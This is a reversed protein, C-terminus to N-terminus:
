TRPLRKGEPLEDLLIGEKEAANVARKAKTGGINELAGAATQRVFLSNDHLAKILADVSSPDRREGLQAAAHIRVMYRSDELATVLLATAEAGKSTGIREIAGLCLQDDESKLEKSLEALVKSGESPQKDVTKKKPSPPTSKKQPTKSAEKKPVAKVKPSPAASRPSKTTKKTSTPKQEIKKGGKKEPKTSRSM